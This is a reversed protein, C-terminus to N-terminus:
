ARRKATWKMDGMPSSLFGALSGDDKLKGSFIIKSDATGDTELKLEGDKFTGKVPMEPGHGSEFTGTVTSGDQTLSLSMGVHGHSGGDESLTWSGSVSPAAVALVMAVAAMLMKM